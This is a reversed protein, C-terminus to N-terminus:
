VESTRNWQRPSDNPMEGSCLSVGDIEEDM